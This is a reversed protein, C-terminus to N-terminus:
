RGPSPAIYKNTIRGDSSIAVIGPMPVQYTGLHVDKTSSVYMALDFLGVLSKSMELTGDSFLDMQLGRDAAWHRITSPPERLSYYFIM